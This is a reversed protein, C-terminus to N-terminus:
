EAAIPATANPNTWYLGGWSNNMIRVGRGILDRHIPELGLAGSVENGQGSGDDVPPKDNIIRASVIQAGPAIGGPWQGFPKGAAVQAVATGHEVVDDVALNNTAPNIYNLNAIVRGALAPHTRNVGSDIIGIRIGAGTLGAAHAVGAGTWIIHRSYVPNPTEVVTAPPPPTPPPATPPPDARNSGGGGCAVLLGSLCAASW